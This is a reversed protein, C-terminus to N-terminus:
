CNLSSIYDFSHPFTSTSDTGIAIDLWEYAAIASASGTSSGGPSQYGDARPNWPAQYDVYETPEVWVGFPNLKTKGVIVAHQNTLVQLCKATEKPPAFTNRYARNCLSTPVGAIHFNDKVVVRWGDIPSRPQEGSKLRSSVAIRPFSDDVCNLPIEQFSGSLFTTMLTGHTDKFLRWVDRLHGDVLCYPGPLVNQGLKSASKCQMWQMGVSSLYDRAESTVEIESESSGTLIVGALFGQQFVDDDREYKQVRARIWSQTIRIEDAPVHFVTM